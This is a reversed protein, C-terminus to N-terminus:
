VPSSSVDTSGSSMSTSQSDASSKLSHSFKRLAAISRPLSIAYWFFICAPFSATMLPLISRICSCDRLNSNNWHEVTFVFESVIYM